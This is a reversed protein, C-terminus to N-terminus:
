GESSVTVSTPPLRGLMVDRLSAPRRSPLVNGSKSAAYAGAYNLLDAAIGPSLRGLLWSWKGPMSVAATCSHSCAALCAVSEVRVHPTETRAMEGRVAEYLRSGTTEAEPDDQRGCTVCVYLTADM